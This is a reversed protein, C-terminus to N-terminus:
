SQPWKYLLIIGPEGVTVGYIGDSRIYYNCTGGCRNLDGKVKFVQYGEQRPQGNDDWWFNCWYLTTEWFNVYFSWDWHTEFALTREGLDDDASKCHMTLPTNPSLENVVYVGNPYEHIKWGDIVSSCGFLITLVLLFFKASVLPSSSTNGNIFFCAM